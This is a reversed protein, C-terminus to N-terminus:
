CNLEVNPEVPDFDLGHSLLVSGGLIFELLLWDINFQM